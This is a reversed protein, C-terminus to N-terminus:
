LKSLTNSLLSKGETSLETNQYPNIALSKRILNEGAAQNGLKYNVLGNLCLLTADQSKTRNAKQLFAAANKFDKKQYYIHALTRCVDINNPRRKYEKNAYQLAKDHDQGLELYINALELDVIHGAEQDEELGALLDQLAKAAKIPQGQQQYLRTLEEQFTFEPIVNAADTFLRIAENPKGKKAALRGLGALAFAYKPYEAMARSYCYEAKKLNGTKEYLSGLTVRTWATQELGPYGAAAAFEMAEIAGPMDGHIERLYSIRSYSKLDPRLATMQDAM